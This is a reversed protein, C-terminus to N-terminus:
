FAEQSPNNAASLAAGDIRVPLDLSLDVAEHGTWYFLEITLNCPKLWEM